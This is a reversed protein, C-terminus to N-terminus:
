VLWGMAYGGLLTIAWVVHNKPDQWFARSFLISLM